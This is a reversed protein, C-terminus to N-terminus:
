FYRDNSSEPHPSEKARFSHSVNNHQMIRDVREIGNNSSHFASPMPPPCYGVDRLGFPQVSPGIDSFVHPPRSQQSFPFGFPDHSPAYHSYSSVGHPPPAYWNPLGPHEYAM